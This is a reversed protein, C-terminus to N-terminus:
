GHFPTNEGLLLRLCTDERTLKGLLCDIGAVRAFSVFKSFPMERLRQDTVAFIAVALAPAARPV